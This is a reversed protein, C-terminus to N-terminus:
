RLFFQPVQGANFDVGAPWAANDRSPAAGVYTDAGGLDLFAGVTNGTLGEGGNLLVGRGTTFGRGDGSHAVMFHGDDGSVDVFLGNGEAPGGFGENMTWASRPSRTDGFYQDNGGMELFVGVGAFSATGFACNLLPVINPSTASSVAQYDDNGGDDLFVGTGGFAGFGYAYFDTTTANDWAHYQDASAGADTLVGVGAYFGTGGPYLGQFPCADCAGLGGDFGYALWADDGGADAAIGVGGVNGFGQALDWVDHNASSVDAEYTDSGSADLLIGAGALGFGQAGADVYLYVAGRASRTLSSLYHDDGQADVLIGIGGLSGAGQVDTSEGAYEYRDNGALDVLVSAALGNCTHLENLLDPCAAGATTHYVDDGGADVLLAPDRLAGTREYTDSGTSGLIVLGEPDRFLPTASAPWQVDRTADRFANQAAVLALANAVTTAREDDPLVLDAASTSTAVRAKEAAAVPLQAAYADAVAAVLSAFPARVDAPLADAQRAVDARQAADLPFGATADLRAVEVALDAPKVDAPELALLAEPKALALWQAVTRGSRTEETLMAHAVDLPSRGNMALRQPHNLGHDALYHSARQAFRPDQIGEHNLEGLPRGLDPAPEARM